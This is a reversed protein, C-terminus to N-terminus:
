PEFGVNALRALCLRLLRANFPYWFLTILKENIYCGQPLLSPCESPITFWM